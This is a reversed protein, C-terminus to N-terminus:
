WEGKNMSGKWPCNNNPGLMEYSIEKSHHSLKKQPIWTPVAPQVFTTSHGGLHILVKTYFTDCVRNIALVQRRPYYITYYSLL